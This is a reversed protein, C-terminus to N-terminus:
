THYPDLYIVFVRNHPDAAQRDSDSKSVPDRREADPTNPESRILEFTELKQPKGDELIEFDAATLGEVFKGNQRPYADVYVFNAIGRFVPPRQDQPSPAAAPPPTAPAPPAAPTAQQAFAFVTAGLCAASIAATLRGATSIM